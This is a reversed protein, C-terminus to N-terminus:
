RSVAALRGPHAPSAESHLPQRRPATPAPRPVRYVGEWRNWRLIEAQDVLLQEDDGAPIWRIFRHREGALVEHAGLRRLPAEASDRRAIPREFITGIFEGIVKHASLRVELSGDDGPKAWVVLMQVSGDRVLRVAQVQPLELEDAAKAAPQGDLELRALREGHRYIEVRRGPIIVALEEDSQGTFSGVLALSAEDPAERGALEAFRERAADTTLDLRADAVQPDVLELPNRDPEVPANAEADAQRDISRLNPADDEGVAEDEYVEEDVAGAAAVGAQPDDQPPCAQANMPQACDCVYPKLAGKISQCGSAGLAVLLAIALITHSKRNSVDASIRATLLGAPAGAELGARCLWMYHGTTGNDLFDPASFRHWSM